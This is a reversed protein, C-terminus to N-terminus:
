HSVRRYSQIDAQAVPHRILNSILLVVGISACVSGWKSKCKAGTKPAGATLLNAKALVKAAENCTAIKFVGSDGIESVHELLYDLLAEIEQVNWQVPPSKPKKPQKDTAM